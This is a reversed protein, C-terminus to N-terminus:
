SAHGTEQSIQSSEHERGVFTDREAEEIVDDWTHLQDYM